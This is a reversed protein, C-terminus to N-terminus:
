GNAIKFSYAYHHEIRRTSSASLAPAALCSAGMRIASGYKVGNSEAAFLLDFENSGSWPAGDLTRSGPNQTITQNIGNFRASTAAISRGTSTSSAIINQNVQSFSSGNMWTFVTGSSGDGLIRLRPNPNGTGVQFNLPQPNQGDTAGTRGHIHATGNSVSKTRICHVCTFSPNVEVVSALNFWKISSGSINGSDIAPLGNIASVIYSPRRSATAQSGDPGQRSTLSAMQTNNAQAPTFRADVAFSVGNVHGPNFHRVRRGM